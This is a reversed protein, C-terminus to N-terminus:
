FPKFVALLVIAILLLTPVENLVRFQRSTFREGAELRQRYRGALYQLFFLGGILALKSWIWLSTAYAQWRMAFLGIGFVLTAISAPTLIIRHLKRAMVQLTAITEPSESEAQYVFLRWIYFMGAFWAVFAIIHLAKLTLLLGIM